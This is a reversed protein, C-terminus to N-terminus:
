WAINIHIHQFDFFQKPMIIYPYTLQWKKKENMVDM